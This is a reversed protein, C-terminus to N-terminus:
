SGFGLCPQCDPTGFLAHARRARPGFLEFGGGSGFAARAFACGRPSDPTFAFGDNRGRDRDARGRDKVAKLERKGRCRVFSSRRLLHAGDALTLQECDPSTRPFESRF